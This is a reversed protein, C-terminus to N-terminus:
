MGVTLVILGVVLAPVILKMPWVLAPVGFAAIALGWVALVLLIAGLIRAERRKPLLPMIPAIFAAWPGIQRPRTPPSQIYTMIDGTTM